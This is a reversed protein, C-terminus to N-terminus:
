KAKEKKVPEKVPEPANSPFRVVVVRDYLPTGQSSVEQVRYVLYCYKKDTTQGIAFNEKINALSTEEQFRWEHGAWGGLLSQEDAKVDEIRKLAGNPSKMVDEKVVYRLTSIPNGPGTATISWEGDKVEKLQLLVKAQSRFERKAWLKLYEAHEEQTLGLKEHYPLPTGPKADKSFQKFWAPDQKAAAEVKALFKDMGVPPVVVISEAQVLKDAPLYTSLTKPAEGAFLLACTSCLAVLPAILKM